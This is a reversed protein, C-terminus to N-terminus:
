SVKNINLSIKKNLKKTIFFANWKEVSTCDGQHISITLLYDKENKTLQITKDLICQTSNGWILFLTQKQFNIDFNRESCDSFFIDYDKQSNIILLHDSELKNYVCRSPITIKTIPINKEEDKNCGTFLVIGAVLLIVIALMPMIKYKKSM